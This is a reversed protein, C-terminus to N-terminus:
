YGREFDILYNLPQGAIFRCYNEVFIPVVDEPFTPAATHSTITLNPTSWFPHEPPLPEQQFVDLVAGAITQNQLTTALAMEDLSQGRGINLLYAHRPLAQLLEANVLHHNAPTHPLICVLYDLGEVFDLLHDGHFYRDIFECDASQRTYGQTHMGFYKATQAIHRGISGVGLLGLRKGRLTGTQSAEWQRRLQAQYRQQVKREILLLHCFVYESMLPGFIGKVGTLLYDQRCGPQLLTDVGAWTSQVWHLHAAQPLLPGILHPPGFIIDATISHQSAQRSDSMATMTLDPLDYTQILAAYHDAKPSLILLKPM